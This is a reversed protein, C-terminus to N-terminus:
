RSFELTGVYGANGSILPDIDVRMLTATWSTVGDSVAVAQGQLGQLTNYTSGATFGVPMTMTWPGWATVYTQNTGTGSWTLTQSQPTRKWSPSKLGDDLAGVDLGNVTWAM